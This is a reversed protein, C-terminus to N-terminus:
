TDCFVKSPEGPTRLLKDRLKLKEELLVTISEYRNPEECYIDSYETGRDIDGKQSLYTCFLLHEQTDENVINSQLCLQCNLSEYMKSFNARVKVMQSRFHALLKRQQVNLNESKLYNQISLESYQVHTLKKSREKEHKLWFLAATTAHKKVKNRFLEESMSRIESLSLNLNLEVIDNQVTEWWDGKLTNEIQALLFSCPTGFFMHRKKYFGDNKSWSYSSAPVISM